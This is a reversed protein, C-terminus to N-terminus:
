AKFSRERDVKRIAHLITTHDRHFARGIQPLSLPPDFRQRALWIAEHRARVIHVDRRPGILDTPLLGYKQCTEQIVQVFLYERREASLAVTKM